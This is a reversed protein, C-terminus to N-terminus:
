VFLLLILLVAYFLAEKIAEEGFLMLTM